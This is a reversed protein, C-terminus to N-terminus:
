PSLASPNCPCTSCQKVHCHQAWLHHLGQQPMAGAPQRRLGLQRSMLRTIQNSPLGPLAAYVERALRIADMNHALSALAGAYPLVVNAALILARGRSVAGGEVMLAAAVREAAARATPADLARRLPLWPGSVGWRAGLQLLGHLRAREIRPLREAEALLAEPTVGALMRLSAQRLAERDRGYGLAEALASWIVRDEPSWAVGSTPVARAAVIERAFAAARADFRESGLRALLYRLSGPSLHSAFGACPWPSSPADQESRPLVVLPVRSGDPLYAPRHSRGGPHLLVAHLVVGSYRRDRGHGHATWDAARLHLEVDGYVRSGDPRALVADRFDPGPGGGPRGQYVLVYRDGDLTLLEHGRWAGVAWRAAFEAERERIRM